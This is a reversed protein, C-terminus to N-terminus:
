KFTFRVTLGFADPVFNVEPIIDLEPKWDLSLNIPATSFKYDLGLAGTPGLYTDGDEFGVYVGGGYYWRLGEVSLPKHVLVLAGMGFRSGFSVLGEVATKDTVFYKGSISNNLTPTSNSLRVGLAFRYDQARLENTSVLAAMVFLSCIIKKM